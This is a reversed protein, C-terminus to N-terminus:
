KKKRSKKQAVEVELRPTFGLQTIWREAGDLTPSYRGRELDSVQSRTVGLLDALAQQSHGHEARYDAIFAAFQQRLSM